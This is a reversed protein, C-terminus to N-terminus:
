GCKDKINKNVGLFKDNVFLFKVNDILLISIFFLKKKNILVYFCFVEM